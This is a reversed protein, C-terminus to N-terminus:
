LSQDLNNLIKASQNLLDSMESEMGGPAYRAYECSNVLKFFDQILSDPVGRKIFEEEAREKSLESFKIQLKDSLYVWLAQELEDYFEKKQNTKLLQHAKKLRKNAIRGAKRNRYRAIDASHKLREKRVILIIIFALISIIYISYFGISGFIFKSRPHLDTETAIFRIDSGLLEIDEKSLNGTMVSTSDGDGKDVTIDFAQTSITNYKENDPDFYVLTFPPVTFNGAHRPIITYEFTVKGSKGMSGNDLQTKRVPDFVDFSAPIDSQINDILKLNGKGSVIVTFTIADNTKVNLLNANGNIQFKGVAGSFGAPQNGPLPKINTSLDLFNM